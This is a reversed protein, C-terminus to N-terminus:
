ICDGVFHLTRRVFGCLEGPDIIATSNSNNNDHHYTKSYENIAEIEPLDAKAYALGGADDANRIKGIFDVLWFNEPFHGPFHSRLFGELFPRIAKV